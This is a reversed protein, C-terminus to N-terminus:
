YKNAELICICFPPVQLIKDHISATEGSINAAGEPTAHYIHVWSLQPPPGEDLCPQVAFKRGFDWISGLHTHTHTHVNQSNWGFILKQYKIRRERRWGVEKKGREREREWEKEEGGYTAICARDTQCSYQDLVSTWWSVPLEPWPFPSCNCMELVCSFYSHMSHQSHLSEFWDKVWHQQLDSVQKTSYQNWRRHATNGHMTWSSNDESQCYGKVTARPQALTCTSTWDKQFVWFTSLYCKCNFILDSQLLCLQAWFTVSTDCLGDCNMIAWQISTCQIETSCVHIYYIHSHNM